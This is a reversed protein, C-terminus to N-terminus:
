DNCSMAKKEYEVWFAVRDLMKEMEEITLQDKFISTIVEYITAFRCVDIEEKKKMKSM